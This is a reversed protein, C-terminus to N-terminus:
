RVAKLYPDLTPILEALEDRCKNAVHPLGTTTLYTIDDPTAEATFSRIAGILSLTAGLSRERRRWDDGPKAKFSKAQERQEALGKDWEAADRAARELNRIADLVKARSAPAQETSEDIIQDVIDPHAAMKRFKYLDNRPLDRDLRERSVQDSRRDGGHEAPGSLEGLRVEIRRMAAQASRAHEQRALYEAIAAMRDYVDRVMAYDDCQEAWAVVADCADLLAPVPTGSPEPIAPLYTTSM